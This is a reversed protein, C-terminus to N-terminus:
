GVRFLVMMLILALDLAIKDKQDGQLLTARHGELVHEVCNSRKGQRKNSYKRRSGSSTKHCKHERSWLFVNFRNPGGSLFM